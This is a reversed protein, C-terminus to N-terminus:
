EVDGWTVVHRAGAEDRVLLAGDAAVDEAM